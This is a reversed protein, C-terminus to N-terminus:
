RKSDNIRLKISIRSTTRYKLSLTVPAETLASSDLRRGTSGPAKIKELNVLVQIKKPHM